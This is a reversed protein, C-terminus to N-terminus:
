RTARLPDAFDVSSLARGQFDFLTLNDNPTGEGPAWGVGPVWEPAWYFVGAGHHDPVAAVTSLLDSLFALQGGPSAPYGPVLQSAQWLFNGLRDGNDLTWGYQTEVVAVDRDYRVALDNLNARLDSLTGHWFPYYSLGIVDFPVRQAVLHDYFSRSWANDGGQDFHAVLRPTPGRADRAGDAAARLLTGLADWGTDATWDVSGAPWLMGNRIENGLQLMDAPTGQARLRDLVDRTYGRVTRALAPLDQGAWAQPTSQTQPDAWFDSYHPDLLLRMGAAKARRAMALVSPLDSYGAPPNVWLRLRVYGAGHGALIREPPAVRGRDTYTVGAAAEQVAFSLDDGVIIPPGHGLARLEGVCPTRGADGTVSLRVWRASGAAAFWVPAGADAHAGGRVVRFRGPATATAITVAAPVDGLLTVGFGSLARARKLDVTITGSPGAPCWATAANGDAASAAQGGGTTTDATASGTVALNVTPTGRSVDARAETAPVLLAAFLVFGALVRSTM